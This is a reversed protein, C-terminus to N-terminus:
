RSTQTRLLSDTIGTVAAQIREGTAPTAEHTLVIRHLAGTIAVALAACNASAPVRGLQQEAALYSAIGAAVGDLGAAGDGLVARVQAALEPRSVMLRALAQMAPLPAALVAGALNETVTGMGARAQLAAALASIEFARNTAYAALFSELDGFHANLLGTAVGAARTIARGSLRATGEGVILEEAANFLQQRLELITVGRPM